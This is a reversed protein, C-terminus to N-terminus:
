MKTCKMLFEMFPGDISGRRTESPLARRGGTNIRKFIEQRTSETTTDELFVVRINTNEFKRQIAMDLQDFNFGNCDTLTELGNLVLDNQLFKILTRTRQAGDIIEIRGDNTDSFFMFPIPLGMLVSEIFYCKDKDNWIFNRQYDLPIYLNGNEFMQKLYGIVYDRTDYKIDQKKERIQETSKLIEDETKKVNKKDPM